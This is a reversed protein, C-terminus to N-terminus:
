KNLLKKIEPTSAVDLATQGKKNKLDKSVNISLLYKVAEIKGQMSALMLATNGWVPGQHNINANISVLYKLSEVKGEYAACDFATGGDVDIAEIDAKKEFLYKMIEINGQEAAQIFVTTQTKSGKAELDAGKSVLVKVADLNKVQNAYMLPTLGSKKTNVNSKTISSNLKEIDNKQIYSFLDMSDAFVATTLIVMSLVFVFKGTVKKM